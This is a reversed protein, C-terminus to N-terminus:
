IAYGRRKMTSRSQIIRMFEDHSYILTNGLRLGSIRCRELAGDLEGSTLNLENRIDTKTYYKGSEIVTPM